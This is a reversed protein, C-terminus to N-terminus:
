GNILPKSLCLDSFFLSIFTGHDVTNQSLQGVRYWSDDAGLIWYWKKKSLCDQELRVVDPISPALLTDLSPM